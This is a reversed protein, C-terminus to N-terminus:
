SPTNKPKFYSSYYQNYLVSDEKSFALKLHGPERKFGAAQSAVTVKDQYEINAIYGTLLLELEKPTMDAVVM